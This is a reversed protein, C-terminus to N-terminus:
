TWPATDLLALSLTLTPLATSGQASNPNWVQKKFPPHMSEDEGFEVAPSHQPPAKDGDASGGAAAAGEGAALLPVPWGSWGCAARSSKLPSHLRGQWGAGRM